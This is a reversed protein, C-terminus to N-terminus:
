PAAPKPAEPTLKFIFPAVIPKQRAPMDSTFSPLPAALAPIRLAATDLREDGSGKVLRIDSVSGDPNVNFGIQVAYDGVIDHDRSVKVVIGARRQLYSSVFRQWEDANAPRREVRKAPAAAKPTEVQQQAHAPPTAILGCALSSLIIVRKRSIEHLKM